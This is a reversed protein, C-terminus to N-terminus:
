LEGEEGFKADLAECTAQSGGAGVCLEIADIEEDFGAEFQAEIEATVEAILALNDVILDDNLFEQVLDLAGEEVLLAIEETLSEALDAPIESLRQM